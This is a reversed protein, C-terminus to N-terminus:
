VRILAMWDSTEKTEPKESVWSRQIISLHGQLKSKVMAPGKERIDLDNRRYGIRSSGLIVVIPLSIVCMVIVFRVISLIKLSSAKTVYRLGTM